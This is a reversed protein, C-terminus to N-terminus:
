WSLEFDKENKGQNVKVTLGSMAPDAFRPPIPVYKGKPGASVGEPIPSFGGKPMVMTGKGTAQSVKGGQLKEYSMKNRPDNPNLIETDISVKYEDPPLEVSYTGDEKIVTDYPAKGLFRITGGTVPAVKGDKGKITVKGSLSASYPNTRGGCGLAFLVLLALPLFRVVSIMLLKRLLFCQWGLAGALASEDNRL